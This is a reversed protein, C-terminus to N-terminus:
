RRRPDDDNRIKEKAARGIKAEMPRCDTETIVTELNGLRAITHRDCHRLKRTNAVDSTDYAGLWIM